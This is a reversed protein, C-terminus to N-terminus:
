PTNGWLNQAALLTLKQASTMKKFLPDIISNNINKSNSFVSAYHLVSNDFGDKASLAKIADIDTATPTAAPAPIASFFDKLKGAQETTMPDFAQGPRFNPQIPGTMESRQQDHSQVSPNNRIQQPLTSAQHVVCHLLTFPGHIIPDESENLPALTVTIPEVALAKKLATLNNAKILPIGTLTGAQPLPLLNLPLFSTQNTTTNAEVFFLNYTKAIAGGLQPPMSMPGAVRGGSALDDVLQLAAISGLATAINTATTAITTAPIATTSDVTTKIQTYLLDIYDQETLSSTEGDIAQMTLPMALCAMAMCAPFLLKRFDTM